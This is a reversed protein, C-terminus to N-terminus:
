IDKSIREGFRGSYWGDGVLIGITNINSLMSTVDYTFIQTWHDYATCGPTLYENGVKVGNIYAEFLDLGAM